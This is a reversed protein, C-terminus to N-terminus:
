DDDEGDGGGAAAANMAQIAALGTGPAAKARARRPTQAAVAEGADALDTESGDSKPPGDVTVLRPRGVLPAPGSPVVDANDDGDAITVLDRPMFLKRVKLGESLALLFHDKKADEQNELFVILDLIKRPFNCTDKIRSYPESLDGTKEAIVAKKAKIEHDYIRFAGAADPRQYEGSITGGPPPADSVTRAMRGMDNEQPTAAAQPPSIPQGLLEFAEPPPPDIADEAAWARAECISMGALDAADEISAGDRMAIRFRRLNQSGGTM